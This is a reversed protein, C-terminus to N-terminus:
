PLRSIPRKLVPLVVKAEGIGARSTGPVSLPYLQNAPHQATSSGAITLRLRSWRPITTAQSVLRITVLRARGSLTPTSTAGQSVVLEEGRPTLASLVAVLHPWRTTSSVKVAVLPTGYTENLRRTPAVTRVVKGGGDITQRGRFRLRLIRRLPQGAYQATKGTWPDAALELKPRTDIGNPQGKLFRDFWLRVQTLYYASEPAPNTAPPHGLDGLYLRKPGRLRAFATLAQEMDFADDRRGQIMLVPTRIKELDNRVSRARAFQQIRPLNRNLIADAALAKVEPDWRDEPLLARFSGLLGLKAFSQPFLADYLSTWTMVPVAAALRTGPATLLKWVAGGGLSFGLAGIKADDIAPRARLWSLASAYDAVERPGDLSSQGGSGGHGRADITLVAYGHPVLFQEAVPNVDARSGGLGHLVLVAPWGAAPPVGDPGYLSTALTVGDGMTLTHDSRTFATAEPAAVLVVALALLGAFLRGV